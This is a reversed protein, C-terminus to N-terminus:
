GHGLTIPKGSIVKAEHEYTRDKLTPAETRPWPTHDGAIIPWHESTPIERLYLKM